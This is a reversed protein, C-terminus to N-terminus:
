AKRLGLEPDRLWRAPAAGTDSAVVAAGSGMGLLEGGARRHRWLVGVCILAAAVLLGSLTFLLTAPSVLGFGTAVLPLGNRRAM